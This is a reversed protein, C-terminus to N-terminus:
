SKLRSILPRLPEPSFGDWQPIVMAEHTRFREKDATKPPVLCIAVIPMAKIRGYGRSKQVERLKRRLWCENASGFLILAGDCTRLNEEHYERIEAEDGEFVPRIVELEKEFLFDEWTSTMGADRQDYILYVCPHESGELTSSSLQASPPAEKLRELVVTKLDELFTELLDAGNPTRPDTRLQQIVNKQREDKVELGVPMWLLRSFNGKGSREIALDIQIEVLSKTGGEPIFSFDGGILHISMKCQTLYERLVAKLESELQPLAKDPLVTYGHQQLDRKIAERQERLDFTTQALFIANKNDSKPVVATGSAELMELLYCMDHALDDLRIWFDKQTEPGFVENLERVRGTDPDVNFFQYGLLSKLEPPHMQPPVPTKLVKFIRERNRFRVGGQEEAAKCFEALEKQTRESKVYPPSMVSVLAVVHKLREIRMEDLIDNDQPKPDRWIEPPKGLLQGLRIELARHLNSVWGKRGEILELDDMGAYSIFADGELVKGALGLAGAKTHREGFFKGSIQVDDALAKAVDLAKAFRKAPDRDLCKLIVSEFAFSLSPDFKRPSPAPEALRKTVISMLTDGEFPRVGTLMEFIVLGFSYIDSAKTAPQQQFQEPAMYAPTGRWGKELPPSAPVWSTGSLTPETASKLARFALGFDTVVARVGTPNEVLVVNGPKFDGHVIGAGHAADLASAMQSILPMAERIRMRGHDLLRSALSEGRLFEMSVYIIETEKGQPRDRFLDYIRCVNPHTVRRALHVESRFRAIATSEQLTEPHLTKIAVHEHLELDDAEYVEGMGGEAVFRLIKFRGSLLTGASLTPESKLSVLRAFDALAPEALFSSTASEHNALLAEVLKRVSEDSCNQSLFIGRQDADKEVAALFLTRIKEWIEPRVDRWSLSEM